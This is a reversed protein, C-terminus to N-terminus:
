APRVLSYTSWRREGLKVVLGSEVLSLLERQITKESFDPVADTFDKVGCNDKTQLVRLIAERRYLKKNKDASGSNAKTNKNNVEQELGSDNNSEVSTTLNKFSM